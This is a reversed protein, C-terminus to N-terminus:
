SSPTGDCFPSLILLVKPCCKIKSLTESSLQCRSTYDGFNCCSKPNRLNRSFGVWSLDQKPNREDVTWGWENLKKTADHPVPMSSDVAM